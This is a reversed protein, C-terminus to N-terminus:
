LMFPLMGRKEFHRQNVKCLDGYILYNSHHKSDDITLPIHETTESGLYCDINKPRLLDLKHVNRATCQVFYQYM